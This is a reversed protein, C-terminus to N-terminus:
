RGIGMTVVFTATGTGASISARWWDDTIPGAITGWQAGVATLTFNTRNVGSTFGSNDDSNIALTLNASSVALVHVAIYMTKGSAIAGVQVSVGTSPSGANAINRAVKGRVIRGGQDLSARMSFAAVADVDASPAYEVLLARFLYADRGVAADAGALGAPVVSIPTAAIGLLPVLTQEARDADQNWYGDASLEGTGLGAVRRMGTDGFAPAEHIQMGDDLALANLDSAINAGAVVLAVSTMVQIPM